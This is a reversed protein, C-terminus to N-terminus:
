PGVIVDMYGPFFMVKVIHVKTLLTIDRSKKKKKVNGFYNNWMLMISNLSFLWPTEYVPFQSILERESGFKMLCESCNHPLVASHKHDLHIKFDETEGTSYESYQCLCIGESLHSKLTQLIRTYKLLGEWLWWLRPFFTVHEIACM